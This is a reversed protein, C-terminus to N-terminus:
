LLRSHGFPNLRIYARSRCSQIKVRFQHDPGFLSISRAKTYQELFVARGDNVEEIPHYLIVCHGLLQRLLYEQSHITRSTSILRSGLESGPQEPDRGM